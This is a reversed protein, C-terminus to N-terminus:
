PLAPQSPRQLFPGSARGAVSHALLGAGTGHRSASRQRRLVQQRGIPTAASGRRASWSRPSMTPRSRSRRVSVGHGRASQPHRAVARLPEVNTIDPLWQHHIRPADVAEQINMSSISSTSSRRCCPPSSAAAAPRASFWCRSATRRSSRRADDFEAADQGARDRQRRGQVFGDPQRRGAKTAFDDMENNLLVGTGAAVVRAGFWDNLTYTVSVANGADDVISYHTTNSGEHPAVGPRLDASIAPRAPEIAARIKAAYGKAILERVPNDVFDPDGLLSNRDVYAHRM